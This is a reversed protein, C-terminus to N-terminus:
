WVVKTGLDHEVVDKLVNTRHELLELSRDLRKGLKFIDTKTAMTVEIQEFRNDVQEFKKMMMVALDYVTMEKTLLTDM